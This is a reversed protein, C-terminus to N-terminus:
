DDDEEESSEENEKLWTVFPEMQKLFLTKGQALHAKDNWYLIANDSLADNKYLTQIMKRFYKNLKVDEYCTLQVKQLLVIETKPSTCFAELTKSWRSIARLVQSEVQDPRADMVDVTSMVSQWIIPVVEAETLSAEKMAGKVYNIVATETADDTLQDSLENLLSGKKSNKKNKLYYDVFEKMDEAEFHRVLCDEDRKNPPFFEIVRGNLDESSLFRGLQEISQEELVTRFVTTAFDLAYGDKVLYDKLLVKLVSCSILQNCIFFGTSKALRSTEEPQYKNIYQLINQLTEGLIRQLYKYRRILRNFVEVYKKIVAADNEAAFLCFPSQEADNDITGGPEIIGGTILIEFLSDGYKRYDLTNGLIDLKSSIAELDGKKITKFQALLNDRFIEPEHKANAKQVGKRQKIRVGHLVPKPNTTAQSQTTNM